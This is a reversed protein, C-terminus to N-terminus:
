VPGNAVMCDHSSHKACAKSTPVYVCARCTVAAGFSCSVFSVRMSKAAVSLSRMSTTEIIYNSKM